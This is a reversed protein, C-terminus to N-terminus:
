GATELGNLVQDDNAHQSVGEAGEQESQNIPNFGVVKQAMQLRYFCAVPDDGADCLGNVVGNCVSIDDVVEFVDGNKLSMNHIVFCAVLCSAADDPVIDFQKLRRFRGQLNLFTEKLVESTGTLLENFNRQYPQLTEDEVFPTLLWPTLHYTADGLLRFENPVIDQRNTVKEYLPSHELVETNNMRGSCQTFCDIISGDHSIVVQCALTTVGARNIYEEPKELLKAKLPIHITNIVGIIGPVSTKKSFEEAVKEMKEVTPWNIYKESNAAIIECVNNIIELVKKGNMGFRTGIENLRETTSLYWITILLDRHNKTMKRPQSKQLQDQNPM